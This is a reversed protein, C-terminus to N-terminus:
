RSIVHRGVHAEDLVGEVLQLGDGVEAADLGDNGAVVVVVV